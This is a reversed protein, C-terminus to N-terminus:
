SRHARIEKIVRDIRWFGGTQKKEDRIIERVMESLETSQGVLADHAAYDAQKIM